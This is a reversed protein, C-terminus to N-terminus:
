VSHLRGADLLKSTPALIHWPVAGVDPSLNELEPPVCADAKEEARILSRFSEVFRRCRTRNIWAMSPRVAENCQGHDDTGSDQDPSPLGSPTISYALMGERCLRAHM